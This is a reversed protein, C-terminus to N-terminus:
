EVPARRLRRLHPNQSEAPALLTVVEGRRVVSEDFEVDLRFSSIEPCADILAAVRRFLDALVPAPEGAVRAAVSEATGTDVPALMTVPQRWLDSLGFLVPGFVRDQWATVSAERAQPGLRASRAPDVGLAGLLADSESPLLERGEGDHKLGAEVVDRLAALDIGAPYEIRTSLVKVRAARRAATLADAAAAADNYCPLVHEHRAGCHRVAVSEPQEALVALVPIGAPVTDMVVDLNTLEPTAPALALLVSEPLDSDDDGHEFAHALHEALKGADASPTADVADTVEFGAKICAQVALSVMGHTNGIVAVRRGRPLPQHAALAAADVLAGLSPVAIIGAQAYLATRAQSPSQEPDVALLPILRSLRRATHAFKRPNGFSEVHLLGLKTDSDQEWHLLLDNASVDYKEGVAAFSSVGIGLRELHSLLALGVGGSQVAVGAPGPDPATASLLASFGEAGHPAAVGLSGPGVLRIGNDRCAALLALGQERDFGTATVILARVGREACRRAAAVARDPPSTVIALEPRADDPLDAGEVGGHYVPGSFAALEDMLRRTAPHAVDGVVAISGPALLSRLSAEDALGERKAASEMLTARAVSDLELDITLTCVGDSWNRRVPVGLAIFVGLMDRNDGQTIAHLLRIRAREAAIMLHEALLTAVGKGQLGDSVAFAMEAEDTRDDAARYWDALGVIEGDLVALLGGHTPPGHEPQPACVLDALIVGPDRPSGFFRRYVSDPGLTAAFDHVAQWDAPTASRLRVARGDTLLAYADARDITTM